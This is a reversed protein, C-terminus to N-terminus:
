PFDVRRGTAREFREAYENADGRGPHPRVQGILDAIVELFDAGRWKEATGLLAAISDVIDRDRVEVQNSDDM